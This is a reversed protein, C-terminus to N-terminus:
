FWAFCCSGDICSVVDWVGPGPFSVVLCGAVLSSCCSRM